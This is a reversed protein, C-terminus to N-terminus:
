PVPYVMLRYYPSPDLLDPSLDLWIEVSDGADYFDLIAPDTIDPRVAHRYMGSWTQLDHSREVVVEFGSIRSSLHTILVPQLATGIEVLAFQLPAPATHDIPDDGVIYEFFTTLGDGDADAGDGSVAPDALEGPTFRIAKWAAYSQPPFPDNVVVQVTDSFGGTSVSVVATGEALTRWVFADGTDLVAPNSNTLTFEGPVLWRRLVTGDSYAEHVEPRIEDGVGYSARVGFVRIGSLVAGTPRRSVVLRPEILVRRGDHTAYSGMLLVDGQVAASVTVSVTASDFASPMLGIGESRGPGGGFISTMWDIEGVVPAGAPPVLTYSFVQETNTVHGRAQVLPASTAVSALQPFVARKGQERVSFIELESRPAPLGFAEDYDYSAARFFGGSFAWLYELPAPSSAQTELSGFFQRPESHSIADPLMLVQSEEWEDEPHYWADERRQRVAMSDTDVLGDSEWLIAEADLGIARLVPAQAPDVKTGLAHVVTGFFVGEGRTHFYSDSPDLTSSASAALTSAGFAGGVVADAFAWSVTEDLGLERIRQEFGQFYPYLLTGQFPAGLAVFTSCWGSGLGVPDTVYAPSTLIDAVKNAARGHALIAFQTFAWDPRLADMARGDLDDEFAMVRIFDLPRHRQLLELQPEDWGTGGLDSVLVVPSVAFEVERAGVVALPGGSEVSILGKVVTALESAFVFQGGGIGNMLVFFYPADQSFRFPADTAPVWSGDRLELFEPFSDVSPELTGGGAMGRIGWRLDQDYLNPDGHFCVLMPTIGDAILGRAVEPQRILQDGESVPLFRDPGPSALGTDSLRHLTVAVAREPRDLFRNGVSKGSDPLLVPILADGPAGSTDLIAQFGAPVAQRIVYGGAGLDWLSFRFTGESDTEVSAGELAPGDPVSDRNVDAFLEIQVAALPPDDDSILGKGDADRTVRGSIAVFRAVLFDENMQDGSDLAVARYAELPARVLLGKGEVEGDDLTAKVLYTGAELASFVYRGDDSPRLRQLAEGLPNGNVDVRFLELTLAAYGADDADGFNGDANQDMRVQGGISAEGGGGPQIRYLALTQRSGVGPVSLHLNVLLDGRHNFISRVGGSGSPLGPVTVLPSLGGVLVPSGDIDFAPDERRIGNVFEGQSDFVAVFSSGAISILGNQNMSTLLNGSWLTGPFVGPDGERALLRLADGRCLWVGSDRSPDPDALGVRVVSYDRQGLGADLTFGLSFPPLSAAGVADSAADGARVLVRHVAGGSTMDAVIIASNNKLSSSVGAGSLNALFLVRNDNSFAMGHAAIALSSMSIDELGPAPDGWAAIPILGSESKLWLGNKFTDNRVGHFLLSGSDNLLYGDTGFSRFGVAGSSPTDYAHGSQLFASVGGLPGKWIIERTLNQSNDRVQTYYALVGSLNLRPSGLTQITYVAGSDGTVEKGSFAVVEVSGPFGALIAGTGGPLGNVMAHIVVQGQSGVLIGTTNFTQLQSFTVGEPLGPGTLGAGERVVLRLPEGEQALVVAGDNSSDVGPGALLVSCVVHGGPGLSPSSVTSFSKVTVEGLGEVAQGVQLVAVLSADVPVLSLFFLCCCFFSVAPGM